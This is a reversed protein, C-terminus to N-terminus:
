AEPVNGAILPPGHPIVASRPFFQMFQTMELRLRCCSEDVDHGILSGERRIIRAACM